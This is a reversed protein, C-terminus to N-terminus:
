EAINIVTKGRSKAKKAFQVAGGYSRTIYTVVYDARELMWNNRWTVAFRPHINEIGEPLITDECDIYERQGNPMYALVVAYNIHPYEVKLERLVTHVAADFQGHSGVYFTDTRHNVILDTVVERLKQKVTEPCDRHGFFTCSPM